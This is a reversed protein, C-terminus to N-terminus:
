WGFDRFGAFTVMLCRGASVEASSTQFSSIASPKLTTLTLSIVAEFGCGWPPVPTRLRGIKKTVRLRLSLDGSIKLSALRLWTTM